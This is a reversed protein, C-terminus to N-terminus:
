HSKQIQKKSVLNSINPLTTSLACRMNGEAELKNRSKSKINLLTSFGQECLYTSSFPLLVQLVLLSIKPYQSLASAWFNSINEENKFIDKMLTNNVLSIFEIEIEEPIDDVSITFPNRALRMEISETNIDPFYFEFENYLSKLHSIIEDNLEDSINNDDIIQSLRPFCNINGNEMKRIWLKLKAMFTKICDGHIIITTDRGQLQLNLFNLAEFIDALYAVNEKFNDNIENLLHEANKGQSTFYIQLENLLEFVRAIVNGKSLWRVATYFLLNIHSSNMDQCLLRFVRTNLASKKIYNVMKILKQLILRMNNPLTKSALAERHIMCHITKIYSNKKKVLTAFGSKSGLMAPAGDTCVGILKSWSLDEKEFFDSFIKMVDIAKTTCTLPKCFLFEEQTKNDHIYRAYVLLQSINSIDTSEDLQISFYPSNRINKIVQIKIDESMESIRNHITDNSLSIQALKDVSKQDLLLKAAKIICPKVLSEGISNPKKDKAILLAIEYSARVVNSAQFMVSSENDLRSRKLQNEKLKFFTIDKDIFEPHVKSFHLKLKSPKMSENALTKM